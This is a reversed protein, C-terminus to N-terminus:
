GVIPSKLVVGRIFARWAMKVMRKNDRISLRQNGSFCLFHIYFPDAHIAPAM